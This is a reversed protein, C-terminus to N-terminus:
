LVEWSSPLASVASACRNATQRRLQEELWVNKLKERGRNWAACGRMHWVSACTSCLDGKRGM